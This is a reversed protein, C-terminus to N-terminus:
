VGWFILDPGWPKKKLSLFLWGFGKLKEWLRLAKIAKKPCKQIQQKKWVKGPSQGVQRAPCRYSCVGVLDWSLPESLPYPKAWVSLKVPLNQLGRQKVTSAPPAAACTHRAEVWLQSSFQVTPFQIWAFGLVVLWGCYHWRLLLWGWLGSSGAPEM